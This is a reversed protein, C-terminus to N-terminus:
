APLIAQGVLRVPLEKLPSTAPGKTVSGDTAKFTSGHNPCTMVGSVPAEVPTGRHTCRADYAKVTGATPQTLVVPVGDAGTVVVGGGVPVDALQALPKGGAPSDSAGPTARDTDSRDSADGAKTDGGCGALVGTGAAGLLLLGCVLQRRSVAGVGTAEATVDDAM